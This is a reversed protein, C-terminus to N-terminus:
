LAACSVASALPRFPGHGAAVVAAVNSTQLVAAAMGPNLWGILKAIEGLRRVPNRDWIPHHHAVSNRLNKVHELAERIRHRNRERRPCGHFRLAAVPWLRASTAKGHEYPANCLRVWFGFTLEAILHGPTRRGASLGRLAKDVEEQEKGELLGATLWCPVLSPRLPTNQSVEAGVEFLTNRVTVEVVHLAPWLASGIAMNWLYRAIADTSDIDTEKSYARIRAPSLAAQIDRYCVVPATPVVLPAIPL